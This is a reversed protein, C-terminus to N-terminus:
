KNKFINLCKQSLFNYFIGFVYLVCQFIVMLTISRIAKINQRTKISSKRKVAPDSSEQQPM